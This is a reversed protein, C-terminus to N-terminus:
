AVRHLSERHRCGTHAPQLVVADQPIQNGSFLTSPHPISPEALPLNNSKFHFLSSHTPQLSDRRCSSHAPLHQCLHFLKAAQLAFCVIPPLLLFFFFCSSLAQPPHSFCLNLILVQCLASEACGSHACGLSQAPTTLLERLHWQGGACAPHEWVKSYVM